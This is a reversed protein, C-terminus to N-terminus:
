NAAHIVLSNDKHSLAAGRYTSNSSNARKDSKKVLYDIIEKELRNSSASKNVEGQSFPGEGQLVRAQNAM